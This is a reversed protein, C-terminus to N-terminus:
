RRKRLFLGGLGLLVMTAPEPVYLTGSATIDSVTVTGGAGDTWWAGTFVQMQAMDGKFSLGGAVYEGDVLFEQHVTDIGNGNITAIMSGLTPSIARYTITIDYTGGTNAMKTDQYPDVGDRDGWIYRTNFSGFPPSVVTLPDSAYVDYDSEGRGGSANLNHKDDLDLNYPDTALDGVLSTMWGGAGGQYTNWPGPNYDNAGVQRIGVEVYPTESARTQTVASLDISYTLVLDGKTLDFIHSYHGASFTPTYNVNGYNITTAAQVVNAIMAAILCITMLRKMIREESIVPKAKINKYLVNQDSALGNQKTRVGNTESTPRNQTRNRVGKGKEPPQLNDTRNRNGLKM